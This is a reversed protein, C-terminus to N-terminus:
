ILLHHHYRAIYCCYSSVQLNGYYLPQELIIECGGGGMSVAIKFSPNESNNLVVTGPIEEHSM